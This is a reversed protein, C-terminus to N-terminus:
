YFKALVTLCFYHSNNENFYIFNHILRYHHHDDHKLYDLFSHVLSDFELRSSAVFFHKNIKIIIIRHFELTQLCGVLFGFLCFSNFWIYGLAFFNTTTKKQKNINDIEWVWCEREWKKPVHGSIWLKQKTTKLSNKNYMKEFNQHTHYHCERYVDNDNDANGNYQNDNADNQQQKKKSWKKKQVVFLFFFFFFFRQM